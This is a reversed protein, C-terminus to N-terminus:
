RGQGGVTAGATTRFHEVAHAVDEELLDTNVAFAAASGMGAATIVQARPDIVNGAAWVGAVSTRGTRDTVVWGNDDKACGLHTLLEDHPVMRPFLFVAARPVARGDTLEVGHLRDGDVVLRKIEGEVVRVGRAELKERDQATLELSHPFFAVDDSWAHLLLAQHV